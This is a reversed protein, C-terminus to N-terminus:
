ELYIQGAQYLNLRNTMESILRSDDSNQIMRLAKRVNAEAQSFVGQAAYAAAMIDLYKFSPNQNDFCENALQIAKDPNRRDPNRCTALMWALEPKFECDEPNARCYNQLITMARENKGAAKLVVFLTRCAPTYSPDLRLAKQLLNIGERYRKMQMLLNGMNCLSNPSNPSTEICRNFHEYALDLKQQQAYIMGLRSHIQGYDPFEELIQNYTKIAEDAKGLCRQVDGLCRLAGPNSPSISVIKRSLPEAEQYRDNQVLEDVLVTQIELSEPCERALTKMLNLGATTQNRLIMDKAEMFRNIVSIMDKPDKRSSFDWLNTMKGISQVYGLSALQAQEDPKLSVTPNDVRLIMKSAMEHLQRKMQGAIVPFKTIVNNLEDPDSNRNYLEPRPAEIYKWEDSILSRIPSWGYGQLTYVSEGYIPLFPPNGNQWRDVLSEGELGPVPNWKLQEMLTPFVDLLRVDSQVVVGQPITGPCAMIMPVHMTTDYIFLGHQIEDHEGFAEGHDGVIVVLTQNILDSKKLWTLIRGIQADTFAIEGDYYDPVQNKYPAPPDYPAHPDYFHVWAFFPSDSQGRLWGLAADVVKDGRRESQEVNVKDGFVMKDDYHDFGRNLGFMSDLIWSAIFAGTRYGHSKFTEAMTAVGTGLSKASNVEIGNTSPYLGTMLSCHSPLTLPVQSFAQDFRVGSAALADIEPTIAQKNGYCGLRDARTTDMTILLVNLKPSDVTTETQNVNSCSTLIILSVLLILFHRNRSIM